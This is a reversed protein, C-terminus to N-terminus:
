PGLEAKMNMKKIRQFVFQHFSWNIKRININKFKMEIVRRLTWIVERSIFMESCIESFM